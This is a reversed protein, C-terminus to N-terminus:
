WRRRSWAWCRPASTRPATRGACAAARWRAAACTYARSRPSYVFIEYLPRPDPLEPVKASDFKISLYSKRLGQEDRQYYNARLSAQIAALFRRLIRDEDANAVLDLDAAIAAARAAVTQDREQALAPDFRAHFLGVLSRTIAAHRALTQEVYSQSYTFGAQKLYKAYARLMVIEDSLLSAALTLRNFGDNEVQRKWIRAFAQEFKPKVEAFDVGEYRHLLGFDHIHIAAQAQREIVYSRESDVEVGMNELM